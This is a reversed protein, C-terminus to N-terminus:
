GHQIEFAKVLAFGSGTVKKEDVILLKRLSELARKTHLHWEPSTARERELERLSRHERVLNISLESILLKTWAHSPENRRVASSAKVVFKNRFLMLMMICLATVIVFHAKFFVQAWLHWSSSTSKFILRGSKLKRSSILSFSLWKM